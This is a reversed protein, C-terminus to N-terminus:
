FPISDEDSYGGTFEDEPPPAPARQQRQQQAPAGQGRGGGQSGSNGQRGYGGGSPKGQARQGGSQQQPQEHGAGDGGDYNGSGDGDGGRKGGAFCLENVVVQTRYRKEGDKDYSQTQLKGEILVQTGKVLYQALSEARSGWLVCSIWETRQQKQKDKDYYTETAALRFNMVAQGGQTHRIEADAGLMGMAIVKNFGNSM